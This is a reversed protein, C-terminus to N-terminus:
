GIWTLLLRLIDIDKEMDRKNASRSDTYREDVTEVLKPRYSRPRVSSDTILVLM